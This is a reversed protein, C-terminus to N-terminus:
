LAPASPTTREELPEIQGRERLIIRPHGRHESLEGTVRVKRGAWTEAGPFRKKTEAMIVVTLRENPYKGGFNLFITGSDKVVVEQVVDVFSVTQGASQAAIADVGAPPGAAPLSPLMLLFAILLLSPPKMM